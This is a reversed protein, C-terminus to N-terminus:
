ILEWFESILTHSVEFHKSFSELLFHKSIRIVFTEWFIVFYLPVFSGFNPKGFVLTFNLEVQFVVLSLGYGNRLSQFQPLSLYLTWHPQLNGYVIMSIGFQLTGLSGRSTYIWTASYFTSLAKTMGGILGFPYRIEM